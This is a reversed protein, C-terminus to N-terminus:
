RRAFVRKTTSSRIRSAARQRLPVRRQHRQRLSRAGRMADSRWRAFRTVDPLRGFLLQLDLDDAGIGVSANPSSLDRRSTNRDPLSRYLKRVAFLRALRSVHRDSHARRPRGSRNRRRGDVRRLRAHLTQLSHLAASRERGDALSIKRRLLKETRHITRGPRGLRVDDGPTRMRRRSRWPLRASSERASVRDHRASSKRDESQTTVIMGDTCIITCTQLKPMKEIRVLCMRCSAQLALDAYYCFSPIDFGKDRCVDILRAGKPVEFDKGNITVKIQETSM